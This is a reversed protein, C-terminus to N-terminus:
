LVASILNHSDMNSQLQLLILTAAALLLRQTLRSRQQRASQLATIHRMRAAQRLLPSYKSHSLPFSACFIIADDNETAVDCVLALYINEFNQQPLNRLHRLARLTRLNRGPKGARTFPLHSTLNHPIFAPASKM